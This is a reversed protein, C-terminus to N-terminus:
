PNPLARNLRDLMSKGHTALDQQSVAGDEGGSAALMAVMEARSNVRPFPTTPATIGLFKCLPVWGEAVNFILLRDAPIEHKVEETHREFADIMYERDDIGDGFLGWVTRTLFEKLVPDALRQRMQPLFVTAQTSDFWDGADRVTLIVKAQPSAAALERYFACGPHDVTSAYGSFIAEWNAHGRAAELWGPICAPNAIAESMHFCPGLGLQELALKLSLTGTRAYGAGIIQLTM